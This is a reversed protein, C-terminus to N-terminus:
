KTPNFSDKLGVTRNFVLHGPKSDESDLCFYGQRMFQFRDELKADALAPEVKAQKIVMSDPNLYDHWDEGEPVQAPDELTFLNDILRVEADVAHAASVWHITGKVKRGDPSEGGKSLPDYVCHIVKVKGDADKEVSKCTVFYAGKLRVEGEPKLRFYKKPPEEMFDDAEIYLEGSFPVKRKGANPDNPNNEVEIMEVKGAEWNDIVLKVPDIVAMVRNATQNLEERICFYLLNVDVMSDAKSVGIRSCFERISSPTFGRRRFGCVTPMRPDNWGLVAKTQVLELLKRKSMMTYTLNLRAFEIQQPRNQLGLEILFWDYLPRHAEFELTCISHTIGEIWDSLPHAFDYMPYICWKDGTRHHTCHKIRYIVPDRMNMNPSALDVKARLCKEGDAYKGDRMEHFLKMNEEVSRDRYPSPRSPKGADNGRYEQMEDRTLDEVYAKGMEIMKEAFAYIQDYYDSAFFEEKWEFGLWKVDERISDVYEVDEKTPNTDDFRLNTFGGFKKATGFNLCISKAHGIHIYGNPEPPFRTLVHDRKGTQLDNVIIDQIFNSSEPIEM